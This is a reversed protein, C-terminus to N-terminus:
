ENLHTNNQPTIAESAGRDPSKILMQEITKFHVKQHLNRYPITVLDGQKGLTLNGKRVM